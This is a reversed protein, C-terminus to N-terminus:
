NHLFVIQVINRLFIDPHVVLLLTKIFLINFVEYELTQMIKVQTKFVLSLVFSGPGIPSLVAM